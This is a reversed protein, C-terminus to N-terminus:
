DRIGRDEADPGSAAQPQLIEPVETGLEAAIRELGARVSEAWPAGPPASQLLALWRAFAIDPHGAQAEALGLYYRAAVSQSDQGLAAEFRARAAPTVVGEAALVLVEGQGTLLELDDPALALARGYAAAADDFQNMQAYSRALLRWGELDEPRSEMRKALSEIAGSMDADGPTEHRAQASDARGELPADPLGPSGLAMYLGVAGWPLLVSVAIVTIWRGRESVTIDEEAAGGTKLMRRELELRAAAGEEAGIAGGAIEAELERLQDTYVALDFGARAALGGPRWLPLVLVVMVALTLGAILVWLM